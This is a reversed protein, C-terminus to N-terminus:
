ELLGLTCKMNTHSSDSHEMQQDKPEPTESKTEVRSDEKQDVTKTELKHESDIEKMEVNPESETASTTDKYVPADTVKDVSSKVVEEDVKTKEIIKADSSKIKDVALDAITKTANGIALIVISQEIYSPQVSRGTLTAHKTLEAQSEAADLLAEVKINATKVIDRASKDQVIDSQLAIAYHKVLEGQQRPISAYDSLM